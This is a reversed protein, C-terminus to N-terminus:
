ILMNYYNIVKQLYCGTWNQKPLTENNEFFQYLGTSKTTNPTTASSTEASLAARSTTISRSATTTTASWNVSRTIRQLLSMNRHLSFLFLKVSAFFYLDPDPTLAM